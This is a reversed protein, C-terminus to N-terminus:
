AADKNHEALLRTAREDLRDLTDVDEQTMAYDNNWFALGEAAIAAIEQDTLEIPMVDLETDLTGDENIVVHTKGTAVFYQGEMEIFQIM